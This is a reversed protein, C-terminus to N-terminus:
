ENEAEEAALTLDSESEIIPLGKQIRISDIQNLPKELKSKRTTVLADFENQASELKKGLSQMKKLFEGWQKKFEGFLQFVENSMKELAFNEITQRIIALVAFLTMPSCFVVKNKLGEELLVPNKEQIFAFTTENPIFLLVYDATNQEPNIYDRTTVEKVRAKVDRFFNALLETKESETQAKLYKLYNSRPFKVDMNLKLNKPLLFTFDPRSGSGEITKQKLYNINEVFGAIQLIDEAIKEGLDGSVKNNSLAENLVQTTKILDATKESTNKLQNTLEGFKKNRDDELDKVLKTIEELKKSVQSIDQEILEKKKQLEGANAETQGQLKEGALKLFESSNKSLAEFSLGGFSAKIREESAQFLEEAIAKATQRRYVGFAYATLFGLIFGLGGSMWTM